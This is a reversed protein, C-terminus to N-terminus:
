DGKRGDAVVETSKALIDLKHRADTRINQNPHSLATQLVARAAERRGDIKWLAWAGAIRREANADALMAELIPIAERAESGFGCLAYAADARRDPTCRRLRELLGPLADRAEHKLRAVGDAALRRVWPDPDDLAKLLAPLADRAEPGFWSCVNIAAARVQQLPDDFLPLILPLVVNADRGGANYLARPAHERLYADQDRLAETLASLTSRTDVRARCLCDMALRRVDANTHRLSELIAPLETETPPGIQRLAHEIHGSSVISGARRGSVDLLAPIAAHAESGISALAEMAFLHPTDPQAALVGILSPVAHRAAPGIERVIGAAACRIYTSGFQFSAIVAPLAEQKATIDMSQLRALASSALTRNTGSLAEILVPMIFSRTSEDDPFYRVSWTRVMSNTSTLGDLFWKMADPAPPQIRILAGAAQLRTWEDTGNLLERLRPVAAAASPGIQGLAYVASAVEPAHNTHYTLSLLVPVAPAAPPGIGGIYGAATARLSSPPVPMPCREQLLKPLRPHLKAYVDQFRSDGQQAARILDPLATAGRANLPIIVDHAAQPGASGAAIRILERNSPGKPRTTQYLFETLWLLFVGGLL